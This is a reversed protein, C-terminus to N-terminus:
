GGVHRKRNNLCKLRYAFQPKRLLLCRSHLFLRYICDSVKQSFKSNNKRLYTLRGHESRELRGHNITSSGFSGGEIHQIEAAPVSVVRLGMRHIRCCLDTEEYYMFFDPSFGGTENVVRRPMMIDAGSIYGVELPRGTFNFRHSKGFQIRDIWLHLLENLEWKIGPLMRRFSLAPKMNEDYLNGGCAGVGPNGDLYDSLIKVANNILITDPNLCLLNRGKAIEFGANNARGFGVNEELTIFKIDKGPFELAITEEYGDGSANDVIIVEFDIGETEKYVSKLCDVILRATHYNVIIISIDM